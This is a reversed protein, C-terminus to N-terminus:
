SPHLVFVSMLFGRKGFSTFGIKALRASFM